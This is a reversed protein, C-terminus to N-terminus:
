RPVRLLSHRPLVMFSPTADCAKFTRTGRNGVIRIWGNSKYVLIPVTEGAQYEGLDKGLKARFLISISQGECLYDDLRARTLLSLSYGFSSAGVASAVKRAGEVLIERMEGEKVSWDNVLKKGGRTTLTVVGNLFDISAERLQGGAKLTMNAGIRKDAYLRPAVFTFVGDEFRVSEAMHVGMFYQFHGICERRCASMCRYAKCITKHAPWLKSFCEPGCARVLSCKQCATKCAVGCEACGKDRRVGKSSVHSCVFELPMFAELPARTIGEGDLYAISQTHEM